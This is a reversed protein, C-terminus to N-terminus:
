SAIAPHQPDLGVIRVEIRRRELHDLASELRAMTSVDAICADQVDVHVHHPATVDVWSGLLREISRDDLLGVARVLRVPRSPDDVFTVSAAGRPGYGVLSHMVRRM